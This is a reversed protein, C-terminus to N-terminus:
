NVWARKMLNTTSAGSTTVALALGRKKIETMM